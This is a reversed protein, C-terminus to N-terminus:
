YALSLKVISRARYSGYFNPFTYNFDGVRGDGQIYLVAPKTAFTQIPHNIGHSICFWSRNWRLRWDFLFNYSDIIVEELYTVIIHHFQIFSPTSQRLLRFNFIFVSSTVSWRSINQGNWLGPNYPFNFSKNNIQDLLNREKTKGKWLQIITLFLISEGCKSLAWQIFIWRTSIIRTWGM